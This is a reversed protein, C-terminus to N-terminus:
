ASDSRDSDGGTNSVRAPNMRFAHELSMDLGTRLNAVLHELAAVLERPLGGALDSWASSDLPLRYGGHAYLGALSVDRPNRVMVWDGDDTRRVVSAEELETLYRELLEDSLFPECHLMADHSMGEGRHQARQLHQLLYLLGLFECGTPLRATDPRYVFATLSASVSAGLLVIVWSLYVWILFIPIVALQGYIQEYSPVGRVYSSFAWRAIEFLIAALLAGTGAQRWRVRCNPVLMYLAFLGLLTVVFPLVSWLHQWIGHHADVRGIFPAAALYSTLTVGGLVLLPGLTLAGWYMLFRSVPPRRHNVRWIRNFREEINFLMALASLLLVIAGIGTLKRTNGVFKMIYDQVANGAAPVFNSFVFDRLTETVGQFAPMISLIGFVAAAMPVLAFLTTYALAGATEFCKDDRFRQWVFRAFAGWRDKQVSSAVHVENRMRQMSTM